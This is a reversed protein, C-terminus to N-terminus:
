QVIEFISLSEVPRSLGTIVGVRLIAIVRLRKASQAIKKQAPHEVAFLLKGDFVTCQGVSIEKM